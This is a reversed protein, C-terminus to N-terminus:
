SVIGGVWPGLVMGMNFTATTLALVTRIPLDGRAATMYSGLPSSVFATLGYGMMGVVFLPLDRALAMMITSVLGLIWAAILLPRRGIRDAMRGAPIHTIAMAIGFAGLIFGIEQENSGLEKLYIPQFNIFLGEGFGWTFLSLAM